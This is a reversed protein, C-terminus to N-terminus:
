KINFLSSFFAFFADMFDKSKQGSDESKDNNSASQVPMDNPIIESEPVTSEHKTVLVNQKSPISITSNEIIMDDSIDKSVDDFHKTDNHTTDTINNTYDTMVDSVTYNVIVDPPTYNTTDSARVEFSSEDHLNPRNSEVLNFTFAYPTDNGAYLESFVAASIPLPIDERIWLQSENITFWSLLYKTYYDSEVFDSLIINVDSYRSPITSAISGIVYDFSQIKAHSNMWFITNSLSTAIYKHYTSKVKFSEDIFIIDKKGDFTVHILWVSGNDMEVKDLVVLSLEYCKSSVATYPDLTTYDCVDYSFTDGYVFDGFSWAYASPITSYAFYFLTIAFIVFIILKM